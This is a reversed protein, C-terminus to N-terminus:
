QDYADDLYQDHAEAFDSLGSRFRRKLDRVRRATEHLDTGNNDVVPESATGPMAERLLRREM